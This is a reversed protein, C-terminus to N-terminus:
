SSTPSPAAHQQEVSVIPNFQTGDEHAPAALSYDATGNMDRQEASDYSEGALDAVVADTAITEPTFNKVGSSTHLDNSVTM